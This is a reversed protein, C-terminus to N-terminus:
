CVPANSQAVTGAEVGVGIGACGLLDFDAQPLGSGVGANSSDAVATGNLPAFADITTPSPLRNPPACGCCIEVGHFVKPAAEGLTTEVGNVVSAREPEAKGEREEEEEQVEEAVVVEVERRMM